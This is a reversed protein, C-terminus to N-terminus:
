EIINDRGLDGLQIPIWPGTVLVMCFTLGLLRKLVKALFWRPVKFWRLEIDLLDVAWPVKLYM